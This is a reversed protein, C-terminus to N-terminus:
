VQGFTSNFDIGLIKEWDQPLHDRCDVVQIDETETKSEQVVGYVGDKLEVLNRPGVAVKAKAAEETDASVYFSTVVVKTERSQVKFIMRNRQVFAPSAQKM